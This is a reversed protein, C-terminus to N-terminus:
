QEAEKGADHKELWALFADARVLVGDLQWSPLSVAAAFLACQPGTLARSWKLATAVVEADHAAIAADFEAARQTRLQGLDTDGEADQTRWAYAWRYFDRIRSIPLPEAKDSM